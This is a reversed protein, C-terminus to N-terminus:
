GLLPKNLETRWSAPDPNSEPGKVYVEWLDPATAHGGAKIWGLFEGWGDPLGGYNGRFITRAVLGGPLSGPKVRGTQAVPASVPVGIEFDFKDPQMAFYHAFVPGTPGVGQAQVAAILEGIGPGMVTPIESRPVAFHIVAAQQADAQTLHPTELMLM